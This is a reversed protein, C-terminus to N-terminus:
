YWVVDFHNMVFFADIAIDSMNGLGYVEIKYSRDVLNSKFLLVYGAKKVGKLEKIGVYTKFDKFYETIDDRLKVRDYIYYNENKEFQDVEDTYSIQQIIIECDGNIFHCHDPQEEDLDIQEYGIPYSCEILQDATYTNYGESVYRGDEVDADLKDKVMRAVKGDWEVGKQDWEEDEMLLAYLKDTDSMNEDEEKNTTIKVDGEENKKQDSGCGTLVFATIILLFVYKKIM